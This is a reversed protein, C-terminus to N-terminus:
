LWQLMMVQRRFYISLSLKSLSCMWENQNHIQIRFSRYWWQWLRYVDYSELETGANLFASHPIKRNGWDCKEDGNCVKRRVFESDHWDNPVSLLPIDVAESFMDDPTVSYLKETICTSFHHVLVFVSFPHPCMMMALLAPLKHDAPCWVNWCVGIHDLLLKLIPQLDILLELM